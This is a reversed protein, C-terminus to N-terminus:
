QYFEEQYESRAAIERLKNMAKNITRDVMARQIGLDAAVAAPPEHKLKVREFIEFQRLPVQNRLDEILTALLSQQFADSESASEDPMEAAAGEDMLRQDLPREKRLKDVVRANTLKRLFTRLRGKTADYGYQGKSFFNAVVMAVADEVFERTPQQGGTHRRYSARAIVSIPEHYLELFRKWSVEYSAGGELKKLQTLLHLPTTPFLGSM